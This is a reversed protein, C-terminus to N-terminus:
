CYMKGDVYVYYDGINHEREAADVASDKDFAWVEYTATLEVEYKRPMPIDPHFGHDTAYLFLTETDDATSENNLWNDFDTDDAWESYWAEVISRPFEIEMMNDPTDFFPDDFDMDYKSMYPTVSSKYITVEIMETCNEM